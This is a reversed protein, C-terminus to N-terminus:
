DLAQAGMGPSLPCRGSKLPAMVAPLYTSHKSPCIEPEIRAQPVLTLVPTAWRVNLFDLNSIYKKIYKMTLPGDKQETFQKKM